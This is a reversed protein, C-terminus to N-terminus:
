IEEIIVKGQPRGKKWSEELMKKDREMMQREGIENQFESWAQRALVQLTHTNENTWAQLFECKKGALFCRKRFQAHDRPSTARAKSFVSHLHSLASLTYGVRENKSAGSLIHAVGEMANLASDPDYGEAYVSAVAAKLAESFSSFMRSRGLGESVSLLLEAFELLQQTESLDGNFLRLAFAYSYLVNLLSFKVLPSPSASCLSSLPPIKSIIPPSNRSGETKIKPKMVKQKLLLPPESTTDLENLDGDTGEELSNTEDTYGEQQLEKILVAREREHEEWWPRWIPVLASIAGDRLLQNFKQKDKEPLLTWLTDGNLSEINLGSLKRVVDDDEEAEVEESGMQGLRQLIDQAEDKHGEKNDMQIEALRSLLTITETDRETVRGGSNEMLERMVTDLGGEVSQMRMLIDRMHVRDEHKTRGQERLEQFVCDKYFQESCAMHASARYCSLSCYPVNCRPCTYQAPNSLCLGCPRLSTSSSFSGMDEAAPTACLSIGDESMQEDKKLLVDMLLTRVFM